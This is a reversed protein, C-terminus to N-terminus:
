QKRRRRSAAAMGALGTALLTMTAPEPVVEQGIGGDRPANDMDQSFKLRDCGIYKDRSSGSNDWTDNTYGGNNYCDSNNNSTSFATRFLVSMTAYLDGVIPGGNIRVPNSYTVLTNWFDIDCHETSDDSDGSCGIDFRKGQASGESSNAPHTSVVDFVGNGPAAQITFSSINDGYLRWVNDGYTDTNYGGFLQFGAGSVGWYDGNSDGTLYTASSPLAGWVGNGTTGNVFAWSVLMGGVENFNTQFGTLGPVANFPVTNDYAYSQASLSSAGLTLASLAVLSNFRM